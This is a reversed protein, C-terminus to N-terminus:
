EGCGACRVCSLSIEYNLGAALPVYRTALMSTDSLCQEPTQCSLMHMCLVLFTSHLVPATRDKQLAQLGFM